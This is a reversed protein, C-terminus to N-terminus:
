GFLSFIKLFLIKSNGLDILKEFILFKEIIFEGGQERLERLFNVSVNTYISELTPIINDGENYVPIIIDLLYKM